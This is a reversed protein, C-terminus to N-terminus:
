KSGAQMIAQVTKEMAGPAPANKSAYKGNPKFIAFNGPEIPNMKFMLDMTQNANLFLHVGKLRHRVIYQKILDGSVIAEDAPIHLFLFVVDEPLEAQLSAMYELQERSREDEYNWKTLYITKGKYKELIRNIWTTGRENSASLFYGPLAEAPESRVDKYAILRAIDASDKVEIKVIEDLSQVLQPISLGSQIHRSLVVQQRPSYKYFNRPLYRAKLFERATSDFLDSYIRSEREFDFLLNLVMENRAFIKNLIDLESKEAVGNSAIEDLKTIEEATLKSANKRILSAMLRVPLSNNRSPNNYKKAQVAQDAYNGFRNALTVRQASLPSQTLRGLSTILTSSKTLETESSLSYEWMNQLREDEIVSEAWNILAPSPSTNGGLSTLASKRLEARKSAATTASSANQEWFTDYFKSGLASNANIIRNEEIQYRSYQNNADANVGAFYFLKRANKISDGDFVIDITGPSGLFTTFALGSYDLYIEEQEYIM